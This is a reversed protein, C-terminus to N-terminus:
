IKDYVYSDEKRTLLIENTESDRVYHSTVLLHNEICWDNLKDSPIGLILLEDAKPQNKRKIGRAVKEKFIIYAGFKTLTFKILQEKNMM